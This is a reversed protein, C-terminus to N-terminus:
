QSTSMDGGWPHYTILAKNKTGELIGKAMSRWIPRWDSSDNVPPRDGGLIWIINSYKAYRLGMWLGYKYANESNFIVPGTGWLLTVKDGWTPLLGIYLDKLL